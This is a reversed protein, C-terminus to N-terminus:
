KKSKGFRWGAFIQIVNNKADISSFMSTSTTQQSEDPQKYLQSLSINIRAGILLGKFPHIEFGGGIGYDLRNYMNLIKGYSAYPTGSLMQNSSDVKANLLYAIQGGAQLQFYKTINIALFQSLMIYSLNVNGTNTSTKYNYGQRSFNLETRSGIIKASPSFFLGANFGSRSSNNIDSANSINAFNVGAKIGIQAFLCYPLAILLCLILRKM